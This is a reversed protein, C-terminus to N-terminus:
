IIKRCMPSEFHLIRELPQVDLGNPVHRVPIHELGDLQDETLDLGVIPLRLEVGKNVLLGEVVLCLDALGEGGDLFLTDCVTNPM